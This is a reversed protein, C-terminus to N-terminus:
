RDVEDKRSLEIWYSLASGSRDSLPRSEATVYGNILRDGRRKIKFILDHPYRLADQTNLASGRFSLEVFGDEAPNISYLTLADEGLRGSIHGGKEILLTLSQRKTDTHTITGEWAGTLADTAALGEESRAYLDPAFVNLVEKLVVWSEGESRNVLAVAVFNDDPLIFLQASVGPMGGSHYVVKHESQHWVVVGLAYYDRNGRIDYDESQMEAISEASLLDSEGKAADIYFQGFRILDEASAYIASAGPHDFDYFSLHSDDTAYRQAVDDSFPDGPPVFSNTMGLPEFIEERMFDAYSKGSVREIVYDLLGYGFNSYQHTEGPMMVIKGYKRISEDRSPPLASEDEYFFQYHLPLGARHSLVRRITADDANGIHAVLKQDGLYDNIPADLDVLGREVLMMIAVATFPKTISALSYATDKTPQVGYDRDAFGFGEAWVIERDMSVAVTASPLNYKALMDKVREGADEAQGAFAFSPFLFVVLVGFLTPWLRIVQRFM